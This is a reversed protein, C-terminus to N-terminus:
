GEILEENKNGLRKTTLIIVAAITVIIASVLFIKSSGIYQYIMGYVYGLIAKSINMAVNMLTIATGFVLPSVNEQIYALSAVTQVAVGTCHVLSVAIFVYPNPIFAYVYLRIAMLAVAIFMFKKYGMKKILQSAFMLFVVEPFVQVANLISIFSNSANLTNTLHNGAYAGASDVVIQTMMIVSLIFIYNKNSLLEKFIGEKKEEKKTTDKEEVDAKPFTLCVLLALGLLLIYSTFLPGDLGVADAIFGVAMSGLAYGLSGLGRISGYNGGHKSVYNMSITDAMPSAGLRSVELLLAFVLVGVYVTQKAYFYLVVISSALSVLLLLNYKRTKDGVIGWIPAVCVGVILSISTLLGIQSGTLGISNELYVNIYPIFCGLAGILLFYFAQFKLINHDKM